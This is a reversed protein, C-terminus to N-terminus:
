FRTSDIDKVEMSFYSKPIVPDVCVFTWCRFAGFDWLAEGWLSIKLLPSEEKWGWNSYIFALLAFHVDRPCM